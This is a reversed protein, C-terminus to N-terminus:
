SLGFLQEGNRRCCDILSQPDIKRLEAIKEATYTIMGSDCRKGRFPVPAMFPADTELLIREIPLERVVDPLKKANKFTVVGTIGIYMGLKVIELASEVSGSFCHVVGHPKYEKLIALADEMADRIHVIVPLSLDRALELQSRFVRAQDNKDYGDYHYDLGMEGIAKVNPNEALRRLIAIWDNPLPDSAYEPHVGVSALIGEYRQALEINEVSDEMSSGALMIRAVSGSLLSSLLTDRDEAFADMVYHAHTDFIGQM